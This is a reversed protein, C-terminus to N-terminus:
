SQTKSFLSNQEPFSVKADTKGAQKTSLKRGLVYYVNPGKEGIRTLVEKKAL